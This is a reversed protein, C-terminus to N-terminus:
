ARLDMSARAAEDEAAPVQRSFATGRAAQAQTLIRDAWVLLCIDVGNCQVVLHRVKGDSGAQREANAM